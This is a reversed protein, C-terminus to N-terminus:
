TEYDISGGISDPCVGRFSRKFKLFPRKSKDMTQKNLKNRIRNAEIEKDGWSDYTQLIPASNKLEFRNPTCGNKQTIYGSIGRSVKDVSSEVCSTCELIVTVRVDKGKAMFRRKSKSKSLEEIKSEFRLFSLISIVLKFDM